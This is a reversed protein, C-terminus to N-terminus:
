KLKATIIQNWFYKRANTYKNWFLHLTTYPTVLVKLVRQEMIEKEFDSEKLKESTTKLQVTTSQELLLVNPLVIVVTFVYFM